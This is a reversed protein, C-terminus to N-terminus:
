WANWYTGAQFAWYNSMKSINKWLVSGDLYLVNGGLAGVDKSTTKKSIWLFPIGGQQAAGGRCHPAIVWGSPPDAWANLDCALTLLPSETLKRPSVWQPAPEGAWPKKHGANYSYGIVWGIGAQYYQFTSALSPCTSMNTGSYQRIANFTNTSIWITHSAGDDRYGQPLKEGNDGGYMILALGLQRLSSKCSTRRAKEKASSLAPLLMAALIAIIAIVVLLEILTFARGQCSGNLAAVGPQQPLHANDSADMSQATTTM